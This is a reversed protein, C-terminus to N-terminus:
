PTWTGLSIYLATAVVAILCAAIMLAVFLGTWLRARAHDHPTPPPTM